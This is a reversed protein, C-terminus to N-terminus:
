FHDTEQTISPLIALIAYIDHILPIGFVFHLDQKINEEEM